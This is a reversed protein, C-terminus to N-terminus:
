GNNRYSRCPSPSPRSPRDATGRTCPSENPAPPRPQPGTTPRPAPSPGREAQQATARGDRQRPRGGLGRVENATKSTRRVFSRASSRRSSALREKSIRMQPLATELSTAKHACGTSRCSMGVQRSPTTLVLSDSRAYSAALDEMAAFIQQQASRVAMPDPEDPAVHGFFTIRAFESIMVARDAAALFDTYVDRKDEFLAREAAKDVEIRVARDAQDVAWSQGKIGAVLTSLIGLVATAALLWDKLELRKSRTTTELDDGM